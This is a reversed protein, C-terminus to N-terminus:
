IADILTETNKKINDTNDGLVNMHGACVLPQQTGNLKLGM